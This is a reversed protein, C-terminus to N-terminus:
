RTRRDRVEIVKAKLTITNDRPNIEPNGTAVKATTALTGKAQKHVTATVQIRMGLGARLQPRACRFGNGSMTCNDKAAGTVKTMKFQRPLTGTVVTDRANAPGANLITYTYTIPYGQVALTANGNITMDLDKVGQAARLLRDLTAPDLRAFESSGNVVDDDTSGGLVGVLNHFFKGTVPDHEEVLAPGGSHGGHVRCNDTELVNPRVVGDDHGQGLCYLMTQGDHGGEAPYGLTVLRDFGGSANRRAVFGGGVVDQLQRGQANPAVRLIALDHAGPYNGSFYGPAIWAQQVKWRGYPANKAGDSSYAPTFELGDQWRGFGPEGGGYLCHAATAVLNKAPSDLVSATCGISLQGAQRTLVNGTYPRPVKAYGDADGGPTIVQGPGVATVTAGPWWPGAPPPPDAFAPAAPVGVAGAVLGAIAVRRLRSPGKRRGASSKMTGGSRVQVIKYVPNDGWVPWVLIVARCDHAWASVM